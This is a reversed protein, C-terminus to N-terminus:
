LRVRCLKAEFRGKLSTAAQEADGTFEFGLTGRVRGDPTSAVSELTIEGGPPLVQSHHGLRVTPLAYARDPRPETGGHADPGAWVYSGPGLESDIPSVVTVTASSDHDGPAQFSECSAHYSTLTIKLERREGPLVLYEAYSSLPRFEVHASPEPGAVIYVSDPQRPHCAAVGSSVACAVAGRLILGITRRPTTGILPAM